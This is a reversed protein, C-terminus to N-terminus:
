IRYATCLQEEKHIRRKRSGARMTRGQTMVVLNTEPCYYGGSLSGTRLYVTDPLWETEGEALKCPIGSEQLDNQLIPLTKESGALLFITSHQELYSKLDEILQRLEGGWPSLQVWEMSLLKEYAVHTGGQLFQNAYICFRKSLREQLVEPEQYYGDLGRCLVGDELLVKCDERHRSLLARATEAISSYESLLVTSFGYDTLLAPTEHILPYYKDIQVLDLGDELQQAEQLLHEKAVAAYKGRLTKAHSRIREALEEPPCLTEKAPILMM